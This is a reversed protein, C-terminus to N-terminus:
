RRQRRGLRIAVHKERSIYHLLTYTGFGLNDYSQGRENGLTRCVRRKTRKANTLGRKKPIDRITVFAPAIINDSDLASSLCIRALISTRATSGTIATSEFRLVCLTACTTTKGGFINRGAIAQGSFM